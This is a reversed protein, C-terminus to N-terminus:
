TIVYKVLEHANAWLRCHEMFHVIQQMFYGLKNEFFANKWKNLIGQRSWKIFSNVETM